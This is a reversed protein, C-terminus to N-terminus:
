PRSRPAVRALDGDPLPRRHGQGPEADGPRAGAAAGHRPELGARDSLRVEERRGRAGGAHAQLSGPRRVTELGGVGRGKPRGPQRLHGGPRHRVKGLSRRSSILPARSSRPSTGRRRSRRRWGSSRPRRGAHQSAPNMYILISAPYKSARGFRMGRGLVVFKDGCGLAVPAGAVFVAAALVLLLPMKRMM